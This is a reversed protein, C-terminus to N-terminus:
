QEEDQQALAIPYYTIKRTTYANQPTVIKKVWNKAKSDDFQFIFEETSTNNGQKTTVSKLVGNEDYTYKREEDVMFQNEKPNYFFTSESQLLGKPDTVKEVAMNPDGDVFKKTLEIKLTDGNKKVKESNRISKDIIGNTFFNVTRENKYMEYEIKTEDVADQHSTIISQLRGDGGYNYLQNEAFEKDYSVVKEGVIRNNITDLEYFSAMSTKVDLKGNKYSEMRKEALMGDEYKYFTIDEDTDNYKTVLKVLRGETDFEFLEKGYDTIVTSTKVNGKLDFDSITFIDPEQSTLFMPHFCTFLILLRLYFKIM